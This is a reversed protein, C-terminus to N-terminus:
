APVGEPPWAPLAIVARPAGADRLELTLRGEAYRSELVQEWAIQRAMLGDGTRCLVLAAAGSKALAGEGDAALWLADVSKGPFEEALLARAGAEDLPSLPRAIRAWAAFAVMLGVALASALTQILFATSM